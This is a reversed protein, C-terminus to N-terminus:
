ADDADDCADYGEDNVEINLKGVFNSVVREASKKKELALQERKKTDIDIQTIKSELEEELHKRVKALNEPTNNRKLEELFDDTEKRSRYITDDALTSTSMLQRVMTAGTCRTFAKRTATAAVKHFTIHKHCNSLQRAWSKRIKHLHELGQIQLFWPDLGSTRIQQPLHAVLLHIYLHTTAKVAGVWLEVFRTAAKEVLDAKKEKPMDLDNLTHWVVEEYHQWLSYAKEYLELTGADEQREQVPYVMDLVTRWLVMMLACDQGAFSHRSISNYHSDLESSPMRIRRIPIGAATMLEWLLKSVSAHKDAHLDKLRALVTPELMMGVFRLNLHLICVAWKSPPLKILVGRAYRKGFHAVNWSSTPKFKALEAKSLTPNAEAYLLRINRKQAATLARDDDGEEAIEMQTNKDTVQDKKVIIMKCGPCTGEKLHALLQMREITREQFARAKQPDSICMASSPAECMGCPHSGGCGALGFNSNLGAQDAGGCVDVKFSCGKMNGTKLGILM